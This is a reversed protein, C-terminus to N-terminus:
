QQLYQQAQQWLHHFEALLARNQVPDDQKAVVIQGHRRAIAATRAVLEIFDPEVLMIGGLERQQLMQSLQDWQVAQELLAARLVSEERPPTATALAQLRAQELAARPVGCGTFLACFGLVLLWSLKRPIHPM